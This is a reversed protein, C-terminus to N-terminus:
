STREHIKRAAYIAFLAIAGGGLMDVLYHGGFIPISLLMLVNLFLVLRYVGTGRYAYTLLIAGVTHYSPFTVIGEMKGLAFQSVSGDRLAFYDHLHVAHHLGTEYHYLAGGAPLLGSALGTIVLAISAAWFLEENREYRRTHSLFIVSYLLQPIFSFYAVMLVVYVFKNESFFGYYAPWDFGLLRDAEAFSEDYLPFNLTAALYTYPAFVATFLGWLAVHYSAESLRRNKRFQSYTVSIALLVIVSCVTLEFGTFRIQSAAAWVFDIVALVFLFFLPALKKASLSKCAPVIRIALSM